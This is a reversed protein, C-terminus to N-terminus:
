YFRIELEDVHIQCKTTNCGGTKEVLHIKQLGREVLGKEGTQWDKALTCFPM